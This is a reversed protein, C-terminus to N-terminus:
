GGQKLHVRPRNNNEKNAAADVQGSASRLDEFSQLFKAVIAAVDGVVSDTEIEMLFLLVFQLHTPGFPALHDFDLALWCQDYAGSRCM